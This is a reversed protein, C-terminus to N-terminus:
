TIAAALASIAFIPSVIVRRLPNLAAKILDAARSLVGPLEARGHAGLLQETFGDAHPNIL